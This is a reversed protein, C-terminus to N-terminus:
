MQVPPSAAHSVLSGGMLLGTRKHRGGAAPASRSTYPAPVVILRGGAQRRKYQLPRRTEGSAMDLIAHNLGAKQPIM